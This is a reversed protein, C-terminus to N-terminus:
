FYSDARAPGPGAWAAARTAARRRSRSSRPASIPSTNERARARRHGDGARHRPHRCATRTEATRRDRQRRRGARSCCRRPHVHLRPSRGPQLRRHPGDPHGTRAAVEVKERFASRERRLAHRWPVDAGSPSARQRRSQRHRTRFHGAREHRAAAFLHLTGVVINRGFESETEAFHRDIHLPSAAMTLLCFMHDEAETITKGPWHRFVDGAEYDELYGGFRRDRALFCRGM